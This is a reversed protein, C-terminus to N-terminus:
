NSATVNAAHYNLFGVFSPLTPEIEYEELDWDCEGSRNAERQYSEAEQRTTFWKVRWHEKEFFDLRYLKM